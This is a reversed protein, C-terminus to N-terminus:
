PSNEMCYFHAKQNCPFVVTDFAQLTAFSADGIRGIESPDDVTWEKCGFTVDNIEGGTWVPVMYRDTILTPQIVNGFPDRNLFTSPRLWSRDVTFAVAINDIRRFTLNQLAPSVPARLPSFSGNIGAQQAEAQCIDAGTNGSYLNKTVFIRSADLPAITLPKGADTSACIIHYAAGCPFAYPALPIATDLQGTSGTGMNSSWDSCSADALGPFGQGSWALPVDGSITQGFEDIRLPNLIRGAAFDASSTAVAVGNPMVWGPTEVIRSAATASKTTLVAVFKRGGGIGGAAAASQCKLDAGQLGDLDSNFTQSTVFVIGRKATPAADSSGVVADSGGLPANYFAQCGALGVVVVIVWMRTMKVIYWAAAWM